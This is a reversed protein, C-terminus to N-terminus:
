SEKIAAMSIIFGAVRALINGLLERNVVIIFIARYRKLLKGMRDTQGEVLSHPNRPGIRQLIRSLDFGIHIKGHLRKRTVRVKLLRDAQFRIQDNRILTVLEEGEEGKLFLHQLSRPL